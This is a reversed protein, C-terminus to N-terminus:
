TLVPGATASVLLTGADTGVDVPDTVGAGAASLSYIAQGLRTHKVGPAPLAILVASIRAEVARKENQAGAALGMEHSQRDAPTIRCLLPRELLKLCM